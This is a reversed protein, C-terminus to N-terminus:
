FDSGGDDGAEEALGAMVAVPDSCPVAVAVALDPCPAAAEAPYPRPATATGRTAKWVRGVGRARWGGGDALVGAAAGSRKGRVRRLRERARQEGGRGGSSRGIGGAGNGRLRQRRRQM